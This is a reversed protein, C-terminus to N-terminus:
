HSSQLHGHHQWVPYRNILGRETNILGSENSELPHQDRQQLHDFHWDVESLNMIQNRLQGVVLHDWAM